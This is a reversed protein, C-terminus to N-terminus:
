VFVKDSDQGIAPLFKICDVARKREVDADTGHADLCVECESIKVFLLRVKIDKFTPLACFVVIDVVDRVFIGYNVANEQLM